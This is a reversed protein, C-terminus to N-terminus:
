RVAEVSRDEQPRVAWRAPGCPPWCRGVHWTIRRHAARATGHADYPSGCLVWSSDHLEADVTVLEGIGHRPGPSGHGGARGQRHQGPQAELAVLAGFRAERDGAVVVLDGAADLDDGVDGPAPTERTLPRSRTSMALDRGACGTSMSVSPVRNRTRHPRDDKSSGVRGTSSYGGRGAMGVGLPLTGPDTRAPATLWTATAAPRSSARGKRVPTRTSTSPCATVRAAVSRYRSATRVKAQVGSDGSKVAAASTGARVRASVALASAWASWTWRAKPEAATPSPSSPM